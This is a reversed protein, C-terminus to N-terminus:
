GIGSEAKRDLLSLNNVDKFKEGTDTPCTSRYVVYTENEQKQYTWNVKVQRSSTGDTATVVKSSSQVFWPFSITFLFVIFLFRDM